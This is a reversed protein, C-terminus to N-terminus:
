RDSAQWGDGQFILYDLDRGPEHQTPRQVQIMQNEEM